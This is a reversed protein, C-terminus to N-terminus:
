LKTKSAVANQAAAADKAIGAAAQMNGMAQQGQMAQAEAERAENVKDMPVIMGEPVAYTKGLHEVAFDFDIRQKVEPAVQM